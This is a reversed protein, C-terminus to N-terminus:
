PLVVGSGVVRGEELVRFGRQGDDPLQVASACLLKLEHSTGPALGSANDHSLSCRASAGGDFEVQGRWAAPIDTARGGDATALLDLRVPIRMKAPFDRRPAAPATTTAATDPVDPPTAGCAALLLSSLLLTSRM